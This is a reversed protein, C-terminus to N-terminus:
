DGHITMAITAPRDTVTAGPRDSPCHASPRFGTMLVSGKMTKGLLDALQQWLIRRGSPWISRPPSWRGSVQMTWGFSESLDRLITAPRNSFSSDVTAQDDVMVIWGRHLAGIRKM